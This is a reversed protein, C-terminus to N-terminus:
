LCAGIQSKLADFVVRHGEASYHFRDGALANKLGISFFEFETDVTPLDHVTCFEQIAQNYQHISQNANVFRYNQIPNILIVILKSKHFAQYVQNFHGITEEISFYYSRHGLKQLVYELPNLFYTRAHLRLTKGLKLRYMGRILKGRAERTLGRPLANNIGFGYLILDYNKIEQFKALSEYTTCGDLAIVDFQIQPFEKELLAPYRKSIEVQDDIAMCDAFILAKM